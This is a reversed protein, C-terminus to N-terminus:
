KLFLKGILTKSLSTFFNKLAKFFCETHGYPSRLFSFKGWQSLKKRRPRSYTESTGNEIITTLPATFIHLFKCLFMSKNDSWLNTLGTTVYKDGCIDRCLRSFRAFSRLKTFRYIGSFM